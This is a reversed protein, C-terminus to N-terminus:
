ASGAPDYCDIRAGAALHEGLIAEIPRHDLVEFQSAELRFRAGTETYPAVGPSGPTLVGIVPLLRRQIPPPERTSIVVKADPLGFSLVATVRALEDDTVGGPHSAGSAKRLRPLSVYVRMGRAELHRSHALVALLEYGVDPNLGLLVGPNASWMGADRARDFNTLRRTFDSRPNEANDGMFRAYV